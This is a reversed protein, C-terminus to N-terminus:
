NDSLFRTQKVKPNRIDPRRQDNRKIYSIGWSILALTGYAISASCAAGTIGFKSILLFGCLINVGLAILPPFIMATVNGSAGLYNQYITGVALLLLGPMLWFVAPVAPIFAAGYLLRIIPGAMFIIIIVIPVTSAFAGFAAQTATRWKEGPNDLVALRPFLITGMIVPLLLVKDGLGSAASFYGAEQEGLIYKVMVLSFRSLLFYFFAALYTKFGFWVTERFLAMSLVPYGSFHQKLRQFAWGFSILQTILTTALVTEVTTTKLFILSGLLIVSIVQASLEIKNFTRVEQIGIILDELLLTALGLPIWLLAIILLSQNVPAIDPRVYFFLGALVSGLSGFVFSNFLTNGVLAPLLAPNRAVYYVNSTHLGFIGIQVGITGITVAIVYLGRGEPGLIRATMATTVLGVVIILIRTLFTEAVKQIFESHFFNNWRGNFLLRNFIAVMTEILKKMYGDM